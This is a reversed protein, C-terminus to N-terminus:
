EIVGPKFKCTEKLYDMAQTLQEDTPTVGFLTALRKCHILAMYNLAQERTELRKTRNYSRYYEKRDKNM